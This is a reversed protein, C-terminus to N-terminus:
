ISILVENLSMVQITLEFRGGCGLGDCKPSISNDLQDSTMVCVGSAFALPNKTQKSREALWLPTKALDGHITATVGAPEDTPTLVRYILALSPLIDAPEEADTALRNQVDTTQLLLDNM